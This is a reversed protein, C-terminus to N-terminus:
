LTRDFWAGTQELAGQYAEYVGPIALNPRAAFGHVTGPYDRFEYEVFDEAGERAAFLAEAERRITPTFSSDAPAGTLVNAPSIWSLSCQGEACAWSVPVNIARIVDLNRHTPHCVVISDLVNATGLRIALAGGFCYGVAGISEYGHERRIKEIFNIARPDVVAPRSGYLRFARALGLLVLKVKRVIGMEDDPKGTDPLIPILEEPTFPPSGEFLDPVWVDCGVRESLADAIIKCNQLPLGFIDTLVVIARSRATKTQATTTSTSGPAPTSDLEDVESTKPIDESITTAPHFYAGAVMRGRPEGPVVYGQMCHECSM